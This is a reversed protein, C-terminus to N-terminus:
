PEHCNPCIACNSQRTANRAEGCFSLYRNMNPHTVRPRQLSSKVLQFLLDSKGYVVFVRPIFAGRLNLIYGILNLIRLLSRCM